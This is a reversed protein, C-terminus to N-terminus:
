SNQGIKTSTKVKMLDHLDSSNMLEQGWKVTAGGLNIGAMGSKINYRQKDRSYRLVM